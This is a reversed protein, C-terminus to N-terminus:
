IISNTNYNIYNSAGAIQTTTTNTQTCGNVNVKYINYTPGSLNNTVYIENNYEFIGTMVSPLPVEYQLNNNNTGNYDYQSLYYSGSIGQTIILLKNNTTLL